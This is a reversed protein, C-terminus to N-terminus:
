KILDCYLCTGKEMWCNELLGMERELSPPVLPTAILQSHPHELSAGAVPGYNKFLQVYKLDKDQSLDLFRQRWAKLVLVAEKKELDYFNKDHHPPEIIVEHTGYGERALLLSNGKGQTEQGNRRLAPFKNPVVRIRWGPTDPATGPERCAM